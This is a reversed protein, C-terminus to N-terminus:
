GFRLNYMQVGKKHLLSEPQFYGETNYIPLTKETQTVCFPIAEYINVYRLVATVHVVKHTTFHPRLGGEPLLFAGFSIYPKM